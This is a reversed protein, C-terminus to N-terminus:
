NKPPDRDMHPWPVLALLAASIQVAAREEPDVLAPSVKMTVPTEPVDFHLSALPIGDRLFTFSTSSEVTTRLMPTTADPRAIWIPLAGSSVPERRLFGRTPLVMDMTVGTTTELSLHWTVSAPADARVIVCLLSRKQWTGTVKTTCTARHPIGGSDAAVDVVLPSSPETFLAGLLTALEAAGAAVQAASAVVRAGREVASAQKAVRESPAGEFRVLTGSEADVSVSAGARVRAAAKEVARSVREVDNATGAVVALAARVSRDRLDIRGQDSADEVHVATDGFTVSSGTTLGGQVVVPVPQASTRLAEAPSAPPISCAAVSAVLAWGAVRRVAVSFM